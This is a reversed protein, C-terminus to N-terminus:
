IDRSNLRRLPHARPRWADKHPRHRHPGAHCHTSFGTMRDENSLRYFAAVDRCGFAGANQAEHATEDHQSWSSWSSWSSEAAKLKAGEAKRRAVRGRGAGLLRGEGWAAKGGSGGRM